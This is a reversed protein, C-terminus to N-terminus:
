SAVRPALAWCGEAEQPCKCINGKVVPHPLGEKCAAVNVRGDGSPCWHRARQCAPASVHVRRCEGAGRPGVSGRVLM